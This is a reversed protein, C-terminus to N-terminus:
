GPQLRLEAVMDVPQRRDAGRQGGQTDAGMTRYGPVVNRVFVPRTLVANRDHERGDDHHRAARRAGTGSCRPDEGRRGLPPHADGRRRAPPAPLAVLARKALVHAGVLWGVEHGLLRTCYAAGAREHPTEPLQASVGPSRGIDHLLAAAVVAPRAAARVALTGAQLAHSLQDVAEGGYPLDATASLDVRLRERTAALGTPDESM